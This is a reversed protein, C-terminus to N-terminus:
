SSKFPNVVQVKFNRFDRENRTAVVLGHVRATAAIMADESLEEPSQEMLWAWDRFCYADMPLVQSSGILRELWAQIEAAKGEDQRRTREIGRQIESVSVASVFLQHQEHDSIWAVVGGHPRPKRIESLVNTDLLFRNM